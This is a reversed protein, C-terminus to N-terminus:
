TFLLEGAPNFESKAHKVLMGEPICGATVQSICIVVFVVVCPVAPVVTGKDPEFWLGAGPLPLGPEEEGHNCSCWCM